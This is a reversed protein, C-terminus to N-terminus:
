VLNRKGKTKKLLTPAANRAADREWELVLRKLLIEPATLGTRELIQKNTAHRQWRDRALTRMEYRICLDEKRRMEYLICLIDDEKTIAWTEVEYFLIKAMFIRGKTAPRGDSYLVTLQCDAESITSHKQRM